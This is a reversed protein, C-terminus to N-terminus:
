CLLYYQSKIFKIGDMMRPDMMGRHGGMMMPTGGPGMPGGTGRMGMMGGPDMYPGMPEMPNPGGRPGM